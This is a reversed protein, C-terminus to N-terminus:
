GMTMKTEVRKTIGCVIEYNITSAQEAVEDVSLGEGFITVCDGKKVDEIDSVDVCFQDMCIRGLIKARKGNIIVSGRNSLLRPVGDAYGASVTAIKRPTETTYTRGYGVRSGEEVTKVQSVVSCLSMVPKIGEPLTVENSPALGYLIIGARVTEGAECIGLLTAASNCCHKTKFIFGDKELEAVAASFRDHQEKTFAEDASSEGDASSFHTFVGTTCLNSLSLVEKAEEIGCFHSNRFDFGLRCMGTDLKLHTEVTVGASLAERNLEKAYDLSYVCQILGQRSLTKAYIEPTYGLILIPQSIGAERLEEAEQLNSVAFSRAKCETLAKAVAKAGHGYADAKVVACIEAGSIKQIIKFNNKLASIDIEKWCRGIFNLM